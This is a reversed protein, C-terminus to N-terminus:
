YLLAKDRSLKAVLDSIKVYQQNFRSVNFTNAKFNPVKGTDRDIFFQLKNVRAQAQEPYDSFLKNQQLISLELDHWQQYWKAHADFGSSYSALAVNEVINQYVAYSKQAQIFDPKMANKALSPRILALLKTSQQSLEANLTLLKKASPYRALGVIYQQTQKLLSLKVEVEKQWSVVEPVTLQLQDKKILRLASELALISESLQAFLENVAVLNWKTVPLKSLQRIEVVLTKPIHQLSKTLKVQAKYLPFLKRGSLKLLTKAENSLSMRYADHSALYSLYFDGSEKYARARTLQLLAREALTLEEQYRLPEFKVMVKLANVLPSLQHTSKSKEYLQIAASYEPSSCSFLFSSFLILLCNKLRYKLLCRM